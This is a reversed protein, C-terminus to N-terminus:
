RRLGKARDEALGDPYALMLNYRQVEDNFRAQDRANVAVAANYAAISENLAAQQREASAMEDRSPWGSGAANAARTQENLGDFLREIRDTEGTISAGLADARERVNDLRRRETEIWGKLAARDEPTSWIANFCGEDLLRRLDQQFPADHATSSNGAAILKVHVMEHCLTRRIEAGDDRLAAKLLVIRGDTMGNLRYDGIDLRDLDGAWIVNVEPLAGGFHRANLEDFLRGLETDGPKDRFANLIVHEPSAPKARAPIGLVGGPAYVLGAAVAAIGLAIALLIKLRIM